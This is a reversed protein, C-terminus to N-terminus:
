TLNIGWKELHHVSGGVSTSQLKRYMAWSVYWNGDKNNTLRFGAREVVDHV